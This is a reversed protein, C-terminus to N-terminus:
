KKTTKRGAGTKEKPKKGTLNVLEDISKILADDKVQYYKSNYYVVTHKGEPDDNNYGVVKVTTPNKKQGVSKVYVEFPEKLAEIVKPLKKEYNGIYEKQAEIEINKEQENLSSTLLKILEKSSKGKLENETLGAAKAMARIDM